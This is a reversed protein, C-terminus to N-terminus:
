RTLSSGLAITWAEPIMMKKIVELNEITLPTKRQLVENYREPLNKM